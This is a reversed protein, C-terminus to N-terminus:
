RTGRKRRSWMRYAGFSFLQSMVLWTTRQGTLDDERNIESTILQAQDHARRREIVTRGRSSARHAPPSIWRSGRTNCAPSTGASGTEPRSASSEWWVGWWPRTQPASLPHCQHTSEPPTGPLHSPNSHHDPSSEFARGWSRLASVFLGRRADAGALGEPFVSDKQPSASNSHAFWRCLGANAGCPCVPREPM